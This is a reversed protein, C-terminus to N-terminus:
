CPIGIAREKHLHDARFYGFLHGWYIMNNLPEERFIRMRKSLAYGGNIPEPYGDMASEVFINGILICGSSKM